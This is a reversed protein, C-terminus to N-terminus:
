MDSPQHTSPDCSVYMLVFHTNGLNFSYWLNRSEQPGPMHFRHQYPVGIGLAYGCVTLSYVNATSVCAYM